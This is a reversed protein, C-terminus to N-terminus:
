AHSSLILSVIHFVKKLGILFYMVILTLNNFFYIAIVKVDQMQLEAIVLLLENDRSFFLNLKTDM